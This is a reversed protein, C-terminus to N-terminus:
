LDKFVLNMPKEPCYVMKVIYKLPKDEPYGIEFNKVLQALLIYM